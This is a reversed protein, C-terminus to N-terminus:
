YGRRERDRRTVFIAGSRYRQYAGALWVLALGIAVLTAVVADGLDVTGVAAFFLYLVALGGCIALATATIDRLRARRDEARRGLTARRDVGRRRDGAPSPAPEM